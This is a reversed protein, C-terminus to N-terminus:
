KAKGKKSGRKKAVGNSPAIVDGDVTEEVGADEQAKIAQAILGTHVTPEGLGNGMDSSAASEAGDESEGTKRVKAKPEPEDIYAELETGDGDLFKHRKVKHARMVALLEANKQAEQKSLRAREDRVSVYAEAAEVVEPNEKREFGPIQTQKRRMTMTEEIPPPQRPDAIWVAFHKVAQRIFESRSTQTWAAFGDLADLERPPISICAQVTGEGTLTPDQRYRRGQPARRRPPAKRVRVHGEDVDASLRLDLTMAM